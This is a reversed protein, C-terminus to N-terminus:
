AVPVTYVTPPVFSVVVTALNGATSGSAEICRGFAVGTAVAAFAYGDPTYSSSGSNHEGVVANVAIGGTYAAIETVGMIRVVATEGSKPKNRLVGIPYVHATDHLQVTGAASGLEVLFYQYTSLDEAAVFTLDIIPYTSHSM